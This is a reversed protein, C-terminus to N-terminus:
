SAPDTDPSIIAGFSLPYEIGLSKKYSAAFQEYRKRSVDVGRWRRLINLQCQLAVENFPDTELIIRSLQYADKQNGEEYIYKLDTLLVPLLEDEYAQRFEDLWPEQIDNLLSGRNLLPLYDQIYKGKRAERAERVLRVLELFDCYFSEDTEFYYSDNSFILKIGDLDALVNRLHSINVGRINKTKTVEKDPWLALSIKKSSVGGTGAKSHLLILIFLQRIKPSFLHTAERGKKDYVTFEGFLYAANIKREEAKVPAEIIVDEQSAAM